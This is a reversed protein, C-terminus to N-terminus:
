ARGTGRLVLYIAVALLACAIIRRVRTLDFAVVDEAALWGALALTVAALAGGLVTPIAARTAAAIGMLVFRAADTIQRAFLVVALAGLSRTPEAPIAIRRGVIMEGGALGLAMAAFLLRADASLTDAIFRAAWVALMTSIVASAGAVILLGPRRGQRTVLAALLVQDRGGVGALLVIVFSFLLAAM